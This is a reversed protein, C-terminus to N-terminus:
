PQLPQKSVHAWIGDRLEKMVPGQIVFNQHLKQLQHFTSVVDAEDALKEAAECLHTKIELNKKFDYERFENNLKLLDYFKEVYLLNKWLENVKAQPVLKVGNSGTKQVGLEQQFDDPIWGRWARRHHFAKGAPENRKVDTWSLAEKEQHRVHYEQVRGGCLRNPVFNEAAGGNESCSKDREANHLKHFIAEFRRNWNQWTRWMQLWRKSNPLYERHAQIVRGTKRRFSKARSNVASEPESVEAAEKEEEFRVPKEPLNTDHTDTM